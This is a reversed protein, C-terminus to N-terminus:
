VPISWVILYPPADMRGKVAPLGNGDDFVTLDIDLTEGEPITSVPLYGERDLRM